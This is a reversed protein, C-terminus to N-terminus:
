LMQYIRYLNGHASFRLLFPLIISSLRSDTKLINVHQLRRLKHKFLSYSVINNIRSKLKNAVMIAFFNSIRFLVASN